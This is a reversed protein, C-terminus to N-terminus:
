KIKKFIKYLIEDTQLDKPYLLDKKKNLIYDIYNLSKKNYLSSKKISDIIDKHSYGKSLYWNKVIELEFGTLIRGKLKELNEITEKIEKNYNKTEKQEIKKKNLIKELKIFTNDLNLKEIFKANKQEQVINFFNKKILNELIEEIENKSFNTKEALNLSSFHDQNDNFLLLLVALENIELNLNIFEKILIKEINLYGKKYLNKLMKM